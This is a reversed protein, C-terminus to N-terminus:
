NFYKKVLKEKNFFKHKYKYKVFDRQFKRRDHTFGGLLPDHEYWIERGEEQITIEWPSFFFAWLNLFLKTM